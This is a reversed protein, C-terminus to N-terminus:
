QRVESSRADEIERSRAELMTEAQVIEDLLVQHQCKLADLERQSAADLELAAGKSQIEARAQALEGELRRGREEARRAEEAAVRIEAALQNGSEESELTEARRKSREDELIGRVAELEEAVAREREGAAVRAAEAAEAAAEMEVKRAGLEARM